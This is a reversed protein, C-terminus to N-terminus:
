TSFSVLVVKLSTAPASSAKSSNFSTISNKFSASFTFLRPPFIGFPIRRTPAGPVPLVKIALATAPSAFTGKKEVLPDSNTSINTPTPAELTLSRKSCALCFAGQIIKISSNSAIPFVRCALMIPPFSSFSCVRFWNNTSISPNSVWPPIIIKAAVLRGSIISGARNRAPRKSRCTTTSLGSRFPLLSIRAMWIRLTLNSLLNSRSAM